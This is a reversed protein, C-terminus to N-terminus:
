SIVGSSSEVKSNKESISELHLGELDQSRNYRSDDQSKNGSLGEQYGSSPYLSLDESLVEVDNSKPSLPVHNVVGRENEIEIEMISKDDNFSVASIRYVFDNEAAKGTFLKRIVHYRSVNPQKCRYNYVKHAIFIVLNFVGQLPLLIHQLVILWAPDDNIVARMIPTSLTILFSFIYASAQIIIVKSYEVTEIVKNLIQNNEEESMSLSGSSLGGVRRIEVRQGSTTAIYIMRRETLVVKAIILGFCIFILILLLSVSIMVYLDIWSITSTCWAEEWYPGYDRTFLPPVSVGLALIIPIPHLFFREVYKVINQEKMKFFLVCTYYTCLSGCYSFMMTVGFWYFFAQATCTQQNGLRTGQWFESGINYPSLDRPMPITTLAIAVSYIIDGICTGLMIRHYISSLKTDSRM